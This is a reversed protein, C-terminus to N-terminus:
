PRTQGTQPLPIHYIISKLRLCAQAAAPVGVMAPGPRQSCKRVYAEYASLAGPYQGLVELAHALNFYPAPRDPDIAIEARFEGAAEMHRGSRAYALALADRIEPDMPANHAAKTLNAIGQQMDGKVTQITGLHSLARPYEPSIQVAYEFEREADQVKHQRELSLGTLVFLEPDKPTIRTAERYCREAERANDLFMHCSGLLTWGSADATEGTTAARLHPLADAPKGCEILAQSLRIQARASHPAAALAQKYMILAAAPDKTRMSTEAKHWFGYVRMDRYGLVVCVTASVLCAVCANRRASTWGNAIKGTYASLLPDMDPLVMDGETDSLGASVAPMEYLDKKPRRLARYAVYLATIFLLASLIFLAQMKLQGPEQFFKAASQFIHLKGM